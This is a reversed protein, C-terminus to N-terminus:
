AVTDRLTLAAAGLAALGFGVLVLADILVASDGLGRGGIMVERLGEIAYTMPLVRAVAQLWRPLSDVAFLVGGLLAQPVIVLPIFQIAQLETTAYTSLFIGLNVAVVTVLLVLLFVLALPGAYHIRLALVAVVVLLASQVAAFVGFGAMYGTVVELRRVPSVLLRELTGSTRERLFSVATLLYVFFLAFFGILAPAQYDLTDFQPGGRLYVTALGPPPAPPAGSVAARAIQAAVSELARVKAPNDGRVVLWPAEPPQITLLGDIRGANLDTLSQAGAGVVRLGPPAQAISLEVVAPAAVALTTTGGSQRLVYGLLLIIAVPAVLGLALTRRDSVIQRIIRRAIVLARRLQFGSRASVAPADVAREGSM